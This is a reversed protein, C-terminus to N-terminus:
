KVCGPARRLAPAARRAAHPAAFRAAAAPGARAATARPASTMMCARM